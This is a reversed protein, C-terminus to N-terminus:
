TVSSYKLANASLHQIRGLGLSLSPAVVRVQVGNRFLLYIGCSTEELDSVPLLLLISIGVLLVRAVYCDETMIQSHLLAHLLFCLIVSGDCCYGRLWDIRLQTDRLDSKHILDAKM